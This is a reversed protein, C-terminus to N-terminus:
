RKTIRSNISEQIVQMKKIQALLKSERKAQMYTMTGFVTAATLILHFLSKM